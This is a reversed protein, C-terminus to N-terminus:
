LYIDVHRKCEKSITKAAEAGAQGANALEAAMSSHMLWAACRYRTSARRIWAMMWTSDLPLGDANFRLVLPLSSMPRICILEDHNGTSPRWPM